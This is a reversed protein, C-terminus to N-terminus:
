TDPRCGHGWEAWVEQEMAIQGVKL